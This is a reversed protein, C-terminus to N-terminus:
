KLLEGALDRLREMSGVGTSDEVVRKGERYVERSAHLYRCQESCFGARRDSGRPQERRPRTETRISIVKGCYECREIHQVTVPENACRSCWRLEAAERRAEAVNYFFVRKYYIERGCVECNKTVTERTAYLVGLGVLMLILVGATALVVKVVAPQASRAAPSIPAVAPQPAADHAQGHILNRFQSLNIPVRGLRVDDTLRVTAVQVRRGNVFTGNSSGLDTLQYLDGSIHRIDAHKASVDPHNILIEAPHQRGIIAM